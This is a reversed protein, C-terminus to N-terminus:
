LVSIIYIVGAELIAVVGAGIAVKRWTKKKKRVPEVAEEIREECVEDDVAKKNRLLAALDSSKQASAGTEVEYTKIIEKQQAIL